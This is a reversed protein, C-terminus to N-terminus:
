TRYVIRGSRVNNKKNKYSRLKIEERQSSDWDNYNDINSCGNAFDVM